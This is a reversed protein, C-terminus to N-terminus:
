NTTDTTWYTVAFNVTFEEITDNQDFGVSIDSMNTPFINHFKYKKLVANTTSLQYVEADAYYGNTTPTRVNGVHSNIANMWKEFANRVVFNEDNTITVNWDDFTRDGAVKFSRGM